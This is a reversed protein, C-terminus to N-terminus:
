GRHEERDVDAVRLGVEAGEAAGLQGLVPAKAGDRARGAVLDGLPDRAQERQTPDLGAIDVREHTEETTGGSPALVLRHGGAVEVRGAQRDGRAHLGPHRDPDVVGVLDAGVPEDVGDGGVVPKPPAQTTTSKPVPILKSATEASPSYRPPAIAGPTSIESVASVSRPARIGRISSSSGSAAIPLDVRPAIWDPTIKPKAPIISPSARRISALEPPSGANM